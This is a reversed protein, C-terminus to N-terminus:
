PIATLNIITDIEMYIIGIDTAKLASETPKRAPRPLGPGIHHCNILNYGLCPGGLLVPGAFYMDYSPNM